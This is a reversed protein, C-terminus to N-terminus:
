TLRYLSQLGSHRVSAVVSERSRQRALSCLTSKDCKFHLIVGSYCECVKEKEGQCVPQNEVRFNASVSFADVPQGGESSLVEKLYPLCNRESLVCSLEARLVCEM